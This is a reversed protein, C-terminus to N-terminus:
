SSSNVTEAAKSAPFFVFKNSKEWFDMPCSLSDSEKRVQFPESPEGGSKSKTSFAHPQNAGSESKERLNNEVKIPIAM